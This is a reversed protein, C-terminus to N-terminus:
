QAASQQSSVASQKEEVRAGTVLAVAAVIVVTGALIYGTVKEGRVLWGLFVAVVPNVYAYTSVKASPLHALLWVYASFGVWSGFIVLYIVAGMGRWSWATHPWEGALTGALVNVLGAIMMEYGAATFPDIKLRWRQSFVSGLAWAMSGGLLVLSGALERAGVSGTHRLQPWLLMVIGCAGCALGLIARGSVRHRGPQIWNDLILFWLPTISVVLAALGTPVWQEAWALAVNGVSLLLIGIAALRAAEGRTVSVRRGSWACWLLMLPGAILFRTGSMLAPPIHEVAIGIGLYTSGWFVYVLAFALAVNGRSPTQARSM